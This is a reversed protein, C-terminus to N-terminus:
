DGYHDLVERVEMTVHDGVIEKALFACIANTGWMERSVDNVYADPTFTAVIRDLDFANVAAVFEAVVGRLETAVPM